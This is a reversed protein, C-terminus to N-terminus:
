VVSKRDTTTGERFLTDTKFRPMAELIEFLEWYNKSIANACAEQVADCVDATRNGNLCNTKVKPCDADKVTNTRMYKDFSGFRM